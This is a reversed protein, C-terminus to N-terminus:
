SALWALRQREIEIESEIESIRKGTAWCVQKCADKHPPILGNASVKVQVGCRPCIPPTWRM